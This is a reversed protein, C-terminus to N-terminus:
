LISLPSRKSRTHLQIYNKTLSIAEHIVQLFNEAENPHNQFFVKYGLLDFYAIYYEKIPEAKKSDQTMQNEGKETLVAKDLSM